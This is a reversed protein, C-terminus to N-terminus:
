EKVRHIISQRLHGSDILPNSSEKREITSKANPPDDLQVIKRDVQAAADLGLGELADRVSMDGDIVEGMFKTLLRTFRSRKEDMTSRLFSREPIVITHGDPHDIEAGYENASAVVVHNTGDEYEEAAEPVGVEVSVTGDMEDFVKVLDNFGMDKDTVENKM